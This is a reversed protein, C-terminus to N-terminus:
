KSILPIVRESRLIGAAQQTIFGYVESWAVRGGLGDIICRVAQVGVSKKMFRSIDDLSAVDELSLPFTSKLGWMKNM